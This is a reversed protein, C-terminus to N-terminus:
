IYDIPIIIGNKITLTCEMRSLYNLYGDSYFIIKPEKLRHLYNVMEYFYELDGDMSFLVVDKECYKYGLLKHIKLIRTGIQFNDTLNTIVNLDSVYKTIDDCCSLSILRHNKIKERM